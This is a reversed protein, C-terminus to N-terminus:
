KMLKKKGGVIYIGHDPKSVRRGQLDYVRADTRGKGATVGALGTADLAYTVTVTLYGEVTGNFSEAGSVSKRTYGSIEPYVLTYPAGANVLETATQLQAGNEDVCTVTVTYMPQAYFTSIRIPHGNGNPWGVLAGSELGDWYQGNSGKINWTTGDSNLAFTFTAGTKSATTAASQVLQPVYLGTYENLVKYGAGSRELTWVANPLLGEATTSRNIQNNSTQVLRYGSRGSATTADYFLYSKGAQLTTVPTGDKKVGTIADTTYVVTIVSDQTPVFSTGDAVTSSVYTYYKPTTLAVTFSEGVPSAVEEESIIAGREDTALVTVAYASRKYTVKYTDAGTEEVSQVTNNKFAPCLDATIDTTAVPVSRQYTGLDNGQDDACAFTVVRVEQVTWEAGQDRAADYSNADVNSGAYVLGSPLAFLSKGGTLVRLDDYAKVYSLTLEAATTGIGVPYGLKNAFTGITGISRGTTTNKLKVTQTGDDNTTAATVEWANSAFPDASHKLTTGSNDDALTIGEFGEVANTITYLKGVILTDFPVEVVTTTGGADYDELPVFEWQGGGGDTASSWLNVALGQGSMSSNMYWGSVKDSAISYYYHSNKTGYAATGLQFTYNKTDTDYTWRGANSTSTPSPNVSGNPLAKCVLAYHGANEPDEEISWWQYEYNDDGESAQPSTWLRNEAAGKSSYTSILSSGSHLLEICRDVRTADTGGSILRYYYKKSDTNAHPMVKNADTSSSAGPMLYNCYRYNKLKLVTTDAAVRAIFSDFNRNTQPTWGAEAVAMLRPLALWEMYTSDSVWECWFTGQVGYSTGSPISRNYTAQVNDTGDGAGPPDAATSGQKRNIYYPGWPTYISPLSLSAAKTVSQDAPSWCYIPAGTSKVLETDAGDATIAENWLSLQRGKEGVYDSIQGIFWSQLQRYSTFGQAAYFAQCEANSEWASTPCEDGGIHIYHSPFIEVLEDLVDKIFQMAKPNAVNLVDTSIGGNDWVSHSGNPSCSFEPYAAMAAAFHGPMDIEPIVDVHRAAAYAVVDKMEEQTYFYPGYEKNIWYAKAEELSTFRSNPATAGVTTLKPYKKIEIRWGQDDTLHWHFKNMKYEAMLDIMRKVEETSFFHRSVDLMFGRYAFRPNDNITLLPLSFSTVTTAKGARVEDPLLRKLSRFAYFFGATTQSQISVGDATISLRYGESGMSGSYVSLKVQAEDANTTTAAGLGSQNVEEVFRTAEAVLSDALGAVCVKFAAPLTYTGSSTTMQRPQPTINQAQATLGLCLVLTLLSLVKRM